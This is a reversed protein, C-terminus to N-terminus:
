RWSVIRYREPGEDAPADGLPWHLSCLPTRRLGMVEPPMSGPLKLTISNRSNRSEGAVNGRNLVDLQPEFM